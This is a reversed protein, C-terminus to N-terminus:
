NGGGTKGLRRGDSEWIGPTLMINWRNRLFRKLATKVKQLHQSIFKPAVDRNLKTDRALYVEGMGGEGIKEKVRYHAITTGIM